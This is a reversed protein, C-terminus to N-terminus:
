PVVVLVQRGDHAIRVYDNTKTTLVRGQVWDRSGRRWVWLGQCRPEYAERYTYECGHMESMIVLHPSIADLFGSYVTEGVKIGSARGHHPALLVRIEGAALAARVDARRLLVSWGIPELDGPFIISLGGYRVCTLLCLDNTSPQALQVPTNCFIEVEVGGWNVPVLTDVPGVTDTYTTDLWHYWRKATTAREPDGGPYILDAPISRNRHFIRPQLLECVRQLDSIHDQDPHSIVLQDLRSGPHQFAEYNRKLHEAPSFDEGSGADFAITRGNPTQLFAASGHEVNWVRLELAGNVM